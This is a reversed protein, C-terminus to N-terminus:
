EPRKGTELTMLPKQRVAGTDSLQEGGQSVGLGDIKYAIALYQPRNRGSLAESQRIYKAIRRNVIWFGLSTLLDVLIRIVLLAAIAEALRLLFLM